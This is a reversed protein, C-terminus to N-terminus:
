AFAAKPLKQVIQIQAPIDFDKGGVNTKYAPRVRYQNPDKSDFHKKLWKAYDGPSVVEGHQNVVQITGEKAQKVVKSPDEPMLTIVNGPTKHSIQGSKPNYDMDLAEALKKAEKAKGQLALQLVAAERPTYLTGQRFVYEPVVTKGDAAHVLRKLEFSSKALIAKAHADGADQLDRFAGKGKVVATPHAKELNSLTDYSFNASKDFSTDLQTNVRAIRVNKADGSVTDYELAEIQEAVKKPKGNLKIGEILGDIEKQHAKAVANGSKVKESAKEAVAQTGRLNKLMKDLKDSGKGATHADALQQLQADSLGELQKANFHTKSVLDDFLKKGAQTAETAVTKSVEAGGRGRTALWYIASAGGAALAGWAWLNTKKKEVEPAPALATTSSTYADAPQATLTAPAEPAVATTPQEATVTTADATPQAGNRAYLPYSQSVQSIM